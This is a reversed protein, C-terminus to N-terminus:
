EGAMIWQFVDPKFVGDPGSKKIFCGTDPMCALKNFRDRKKGYYEKRADVDLSLFEQEIRDLCNILTEPNDRVTTYM